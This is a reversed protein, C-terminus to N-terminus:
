RGALRNRDAKAKASIFDIVARVPATDRLDPHALLWLDTGNLLKQPAIHVLDGYSEAVVCVLSSIGLGARVAQILDGETSCRLVERAGHTVHRMWTAHESESLIGGQSVVAHEKWEERRLPVGHKAVYDKSAYFGVGIRAIKRGVINEQGPGYPRLLVDAERRRVSVNMQLTIIEIEIDPHLENFEGLSPLLWYASISHPVAIRVLGRAGGESGGAAHLAREAAVAMPEVENKLREGAATLAYGTPERVFLKTGLSRELAAIHRGVTAHSLKLRRGAGSLSQTEAVALFIRYADWGTDSNM